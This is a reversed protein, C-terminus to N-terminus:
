SYMKTQISTPHTGLPGVVRIYILSLDVSFGLDWMEKSIGVLSTYACNKAVVMSLLSAMLCIYKNTLSWDQKNHGQCINRVYPTKTQTQKQFIKDFELNLM